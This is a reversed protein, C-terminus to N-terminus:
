TINKFFFLFIIKGERFNKYAGVLVLGLIVIEKTGFGISKPYIERRTRPKPNKKIWKMWKLIVDHTTEGLANFLWHQPANLIRFDRSQVCHKWINTIKLCDSNLCSDNPPVM